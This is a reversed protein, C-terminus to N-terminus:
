SGIDITQKAKFKRSSREAAKFLIHNGYITSVYQSDIAVAFVTNRKPLTKYKNEATIIKFTNSTEQLVIGKLGVLGPTCSKVVNILAGHWDCRSFRHSREIKSGTMIDGVYQKWLEHLPLYLEYQEHEASMTDFGNEKRQRSSMLKRFKSRKPGVFANAKKEKASGFSLYKDDVKHAMASKVLAATQGHVMHSVVQSVFPTNEGNFSQDMHEGFSAELAGLEPEVPMMSAPFRTYFSADDETYSLLTLQSQVIVSLSFTSPAFYDFDYSDQACSEQEEGQGQYEYSEKISSVFLVPVQNTASYLFSQCDEIEGYLVIRFSFCAFLRLQTTENRETKM